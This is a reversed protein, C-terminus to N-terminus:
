IVWDPGAPAGPPTPRMRRHTVMRAHLRRICDSGTRVFLGPVLAHVLCALGGAIMAIGFSMAMRMHELYTEGVSAPHARFLRDVLPLLRDAPMIPDHGRTDPSIM